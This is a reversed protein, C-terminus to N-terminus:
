FWNSKKNEKWIGERFLFLANSFFIHKWAKEFKIKNDTLYLRM